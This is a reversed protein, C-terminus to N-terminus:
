ASHNKHAFKRSIESQTQSSQSERDNQQSPFFFNKESQINTFAIFTEEIFGLKIITVM